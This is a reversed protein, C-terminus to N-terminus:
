LLEVLKSELFLLCPRHLFWWHFLLHFAVSSKQSIISSLAIGCNSIIKLSGGGQPTHLGWQLQGVECQWGGCLKRQRGCFRLNPIGQLDMVNCKECRNPKEGSVNSPIPALALQLPNLSSRTCSCCYKSHHIQHFNVAAPTQSV